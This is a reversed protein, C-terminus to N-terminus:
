STKFQNLFFQWGKWFAVVSIVLVILYKLFGIIMMKMQEMINVKMTQEVLIKTIQAQPAGQFVVNTEERDSYVIYNAFSVDQHLILNGVGDGNYYSLMPINAKSDVHDINYKSFDLTTTTSLTNTTRIGYFGENSNRGCVGTAAKILPYKSFLFFYPTYKGKEEPIGSVILYYNYDTLYGEPLKLTIEKDTHKNKFYVVDSSAFTSSSLVFLSLIFLISILMTLIIKSKFKKLM